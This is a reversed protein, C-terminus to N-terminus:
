HRVVVAIAKTYSKQIWVDLCRNISKGGWSVEWKKKGYAEWFCPIVLFNNPMNKKHSM